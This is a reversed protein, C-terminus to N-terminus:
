VFGLDDFLENESLQLYKATIRRSNINAPKYNSSTLEHPGLVLTFWNRLEERNMRLWDINETVRKVADDYVSRSLDEQPPYRNIFTQLQFLCFNIMFVPYFIM